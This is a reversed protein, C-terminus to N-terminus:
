VIFKDFKILSFMLTFCEPISAEILSTGRSYPDPVFMLILRRMHVSHDTKMPEEPNTFQEHLYSFQSQISTCAPGLGDQICTM